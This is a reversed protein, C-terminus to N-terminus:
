GIKRLIFPTRSLRCKGEERSLLRNMCIRKEVKLGDLANEETM